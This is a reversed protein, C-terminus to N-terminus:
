QLAPLHISTGGTLRSFGLPGHNLGERYPTGTRAQM